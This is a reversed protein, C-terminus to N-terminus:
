GPSLDGKRTPPRPGGARRSALLALLAGAPGAAYLLFIASLVASGVVAVGASRAAGLPVRYAEAIAPAGM